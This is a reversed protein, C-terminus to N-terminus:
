QLRLDERQHLLEYVTYRLSLPLDMFFHFQKQSEM